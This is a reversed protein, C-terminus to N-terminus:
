EEAALVRCPCGSVGKVKLPLAILTVRPRSIAGLNVLPAVVLVDRAFLDRLLGTPKEYDDYITMDGALLSVGKELVWAMSEPTFHPSERVFGATNWAKEWGTAVVLAEGPNLDPVAAELEAVSIAGRAPKPIRAVAAPLILRELPVQEITPRGAFMEAAAQVYTASSSSFSIRHANVRYEGAYAHADDLSAVQEVAVPPYPAGYEWMGNEIVGTLDIYKM